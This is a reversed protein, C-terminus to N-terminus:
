NAMAMIEVQSHFVNGLGQIQRQDLEVLEVQM